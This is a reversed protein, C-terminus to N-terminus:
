VGEQAPAVEDNLLEIGAQVYAEIWAVERWRPNVGEDVVELTLMWPLMHADLIAQIRAHKRQNNDSLLLHQKFRLYLNNTLGIYFVQHDRPDIIGYIVTVNEQYYAGTNGTSAIRSNVRDSKHGDYFSLKKIPHKGDQAHPSLTTM